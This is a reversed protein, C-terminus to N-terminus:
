GYELSNSRFLVHANFVYFVNTPNEENECEMVPLHSPASWSLSVALYAYIAIVEYIKPIRSGSRSPYQFYYNHIYYSGLINM